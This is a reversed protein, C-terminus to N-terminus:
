RKVIDISGCKPCEFDVGISDAYESGHRCDRIEGLWSCNNCKVETNYDAWFVEGKNDAVYHPAIRKM